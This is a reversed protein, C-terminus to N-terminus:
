LEQFAIFAYDQYLSAEQINSFWFIEGHSWSTSFSVTASTSTTTCLLQADDNPLTTFNSAPHEGIWALFASINGSVGAAKQWRRLAECGQRYYKQPVLVPRFTKGREHLKEGMKLDRLFRIDNRYGLGEFRSILSAVFEEPSVDPITIRETLRVDEKTMHIDVESVSPIGAADRQDCCLIIGADPLVTEKGESPNQFRTYISGKTLRALM